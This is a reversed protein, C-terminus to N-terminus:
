NQANPGVPAESQARQAFRQGPQCVAYDIDLFLLTRLTRNYVCYPLSRIRKGVIRAKWGMEMEIERDKWKRLCPYTNKSRKLGGCRKKDKYISVSEGDADASPLVVRSCWGVAVGKGASAEEEARCFCFKFDRFLVM